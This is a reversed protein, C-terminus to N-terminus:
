EVDGNIFSVNILLAGWQILVMLLCIVKSLVHVVLVQDRFGCSYSDIIGRILALLYRLSFSLVLYLERRDKLILSKVM